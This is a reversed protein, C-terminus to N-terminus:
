KGSCRVDVKGNWTATGLAGRLAVEFHERKAKSVGSAGIVALAPKSVLGMHDTSCLTIKAERAAAVIGKRQAASLTGSLCDETVEVAPCASKPAKPPRSKGSTPPLPPAADPAPAEADLKTTATAAPPVISSTTSAPIAAAALQAVTNTPVSAAAGSTQIPKQQWKLIGVTLLISVGLLAAVAYGLRKRPRTGDIGAGPLQQGTARSGLGSTQEGAAPTRAPSAALVPTSREVVSSGSGSASPVDITLGSSSAGGTADVTLASTTNPLSDSSGSAKSSPAPVASIEKSTRLKRAPHPADLGLLKSLEDRVVEMSPRQAPNKELMRECIAVLEPALTADFELLSKPTEIQHLIQLGASNGAVFPVRGALFLYLMCGLAYVDVKADLSNTLWQEPPMFAPTGPRQDSGTLQIGLVGQPDDGTIGPLLKAIGFDLIKVQVDGPMGRYPVTMINAPKLDRHVVGRAHTESLVSAIQWAIAVGYEPGVRSGSAAARRILETLTQGKVYEMVIFLVGDDTKDVEYVQVVQPHEVRCAAVAERLFRAVKDPETSFQFKIAVNRGLTSDVAKFVVGMGGRGLEEALRYKKIVQGVKIDGIDGSM